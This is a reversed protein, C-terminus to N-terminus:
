KIKIKNKKNKKRAKREQKERQSHLIIPFCETTCGGVCLTGWTIRPVANSQNPQNPNLPPEATDDPPRAERAKVLVFIAAAVPNPMHITHGDRRRKREREREREEM